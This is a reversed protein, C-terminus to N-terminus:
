HRVLLGGLQNWVIWFLDVAPLFSRCYFRFCISFRWWLPMLKQWQRSLAPAESFVRAEVMANVIKVGGDFRQFQKAPLESYSFLDDMWAVCKLNPCREALAEWQEDSWQRITGQATLLDFSIYEISPHYLCGLSEVDHEASFVKLWPLQELVVTSRM